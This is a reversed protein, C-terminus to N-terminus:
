LEKQLLNYVTSCIGFHIYFRLLLSRFTFIVSVCMLHISITNCRFYSQFCCFYFHLNILFISQNLTLVPLCVHIMTLNNYGNLSSIFLSLPNYFVCVCVYKNYTGIAKWDDGVGGGPFFFDFSRHTVFVLTSQLCISVCGAHM